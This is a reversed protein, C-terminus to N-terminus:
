LRRYSPSPPSYWFSLFLFSSARAAISIDRAILLREDDLDIERVSALLPQVSSSIFSGYSSRAPSDVIAIIARSSYERIEVDARPTISSILRSISSSPAFISPPSVKGTDALGQIIAPLYQSVIGHSEEKYSLVVSGLLRCGVCDTGGRGDYRLGSM